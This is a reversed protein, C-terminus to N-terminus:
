TDLDEVLSLSIVVCFDETKNKIKPVDKGILKNKQIEQPHTHSTKQLVMYGDAHRVPHAAPLAIPDVGCEKGPFQHHSTFFRSHFM